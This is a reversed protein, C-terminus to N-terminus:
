GPIRLYSASTMVFYFEELYGSVEHIVPASGMKLLICPQRAPRNSPAQIYFMFTELYWPKQSHSFQTWGLPQLFTPPLFFYTKFFKHKQSIFCSTQDWLSTLALCCHFFISPSWWRTLVFSPFPKKNCKIAILRLSLWFPLHVSM